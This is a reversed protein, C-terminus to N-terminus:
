NQAPTQSDGTKNPRETINGYVRVSIEPKIKSDTKLHVADYYHGQQALKNEVTLLYGKGEQANDELKVSINDGKIAKADVIKFPYNEAPEILVKGSVKDGAKGTLRLYTPKVIAFAEVDGQM